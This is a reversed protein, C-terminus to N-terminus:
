LVSFMARCYGARVSIWMFAGLILTVAAATRDADELLRYLALVVFLWILMGVLDGVIM